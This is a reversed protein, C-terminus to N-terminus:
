FSFPECASRGEASATARKQARPRSNRVATPFFLVRSGSTEPGCRNIGTPRTRMSGQPGLPTRTFNFQDPTGQKQHRGGHAPNGEAPMELGKQRNHALSLQRDFFFSIPEEQGPAVRIRPFVNAAPSVCFHISRAPNWRTMDEERRAVTASPGALLPIKLSLVRRPCEQRTAVM